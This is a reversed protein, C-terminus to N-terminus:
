PFNKPPSNPIDLRFCAGSSVTEDVEISGGMETIIRHTLALGLGTGASGKTTSYPLFLRDQIEAAIGPGSDHLTIVTTAGGQPRTIKIHLEGQGEMAQAANLILNSFVTRLRDSDGQLIVEPSSADVDFRIGDYNNRYLTLIQNLLQCLDIAQISPAPLRAFRAFNDAMAKLRSVEEHVATAQEELIIDFQPHNQQHAKQVVRLAGLIPTLPNKIEHALGRAIEQWTAVREAHILRKRSLELESAMTNFGTVLHEVEYISSPPLSVRAKFDGSAVEATANVLQSLPSGIRNALYFGLVLALLLAIISTSLAQSLLDKGLTNLHVRSLGVGAKIENPTGEGISFTLVHLDPLNEIVEISHHTPVQITDSTASLCSSEIITCFSLHDGGSRALMGALVSENIFRGVVVFVIHGTHTEAQIWAELAPQSGDSTPEQVIAFQFKSQHSQGHYQTIRPDIAGFSAPWHASTLIEGQSNVVKLIDNFQRQFHKKSWHFLQAPNNEPFDRTLSGHSDVLEQLLTNLSANTQELEVRLSDAIATARLPLQKEYEASLNRYHITASIGVTFLSVAAIATFIRWSLTV